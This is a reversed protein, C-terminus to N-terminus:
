ATSGTQFAAKLAANRAAASTKEFPLLPKQNAKRQRAPVEQWQATTKKTQLKDRKGMMKEVFDADGLFVQASLGEWVSPLGVGVGNFQRMGASLNADLIQVLLHHHHNIMLCYVM